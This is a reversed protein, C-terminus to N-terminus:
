TLGISQYMDLTIRAIPQWNLVGQGLGNMGAECRARLAADTVMQVLAEGLEQPHNPSVLLGHEGDVLMEPFAGVRTAVVPREMGVAALLVGSQDIERYPLVVVHSDHLLWALERESQHRLSLTVQSGVNLEQLREKLPEIDYSPHGAVVLQWSGVPAKSALLALSEVLLDLGKYPKISGVFLLRIPWADRNTSTALERYHDFAGHPIVHLQEERAAASKRAARCSFESHVVIRDFLSLAEQLGWGQVGASTGHFLSTNHMTHVLCTRGKVARLFRVDLMPLPLWQLHVVDPRWERVERELRWLLLAHSAAKSLRGIMKGMRSPPAPPLADPNEWEARVSDPMVLRVKAGSAVLAKSLSLDYPPSVGAGDVMLIKMDASRPQLEVTNSAYTIYSIRMAIGVSRNVLSRPASASRM